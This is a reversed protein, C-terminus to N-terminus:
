IRLWHMAVLDHIKFLTAKGNKSLRVHYYGRGDLNPKLIKEKVVRLSVLGAKSVHKLAKELAKVRGKSSVKYLGEFGRVNKWTEKKVNKIM